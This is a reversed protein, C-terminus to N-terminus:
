GMPGDDKSRFSGHPSPELIPHRNLTGNTSPLFSRSSHKYGLMKDPVCKLNVIRTVRKSATTESRPTAEDEM